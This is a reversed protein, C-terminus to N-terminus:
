ETLKVLLVTVILYLQIAFDTKNDAGGNVLVALAVVAFFLRDAM